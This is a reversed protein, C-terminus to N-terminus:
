KERIIEIVKKNVHKKMKNRLKVYSDHWTPHYDQKEVGKKLVQWILVIEDRTLEVKYM